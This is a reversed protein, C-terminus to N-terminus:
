RQYCREARWMFINQLKDSVFYVFMQFTNNNNKNFATSRNDTVLTGACTHIHQKAHGEPFLIILSSLNKLAYIPFCLNATFM